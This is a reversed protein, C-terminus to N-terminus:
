IGRQFEVLDASHAADVGGQPFAEIKPGMDPDFFVRLTTRPGVDQSGTALRSSTVRATGDAVCVCAGREDVLVGVTTGHLAVDALPTHVVIPNGPYTPGTRVYTEGRTLEFELPAIGDLETLAPFVLASGTQLEVALQGGLEFHGRGLATEITGSRELAAALRAEEGPLYEIGDLSLRGDLQVSWREPAPLFFTVALIAAAALAWVLRRFTRRARLPPATSAVASLFALRVRRRTEASPPVAPARAALWAVFGDLEGLGELEEGHTGTGMVGGM